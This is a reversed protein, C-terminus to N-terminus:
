GPELRTDAKTTHGKRQMIVRLIYAAPTRNVILFPSRITLVRANSLRLDSRATMKSVAQQAAKRQDVKGRSLGYVVYDYQRDSLAHTLQKENTLLHATIQQGEKASRAFM